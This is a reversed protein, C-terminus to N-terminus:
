IQEESLPVATHHSGLPEGQAVNFWFQQEVTHQPLVHKKLTDGPREQIQM